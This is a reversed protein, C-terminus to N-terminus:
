QRGESHSSGARETPTGFRSGLVGLYIDYESGLQRNLEAQSYINVTVEEEADVASHSASSIKLRCALRSHTVCM